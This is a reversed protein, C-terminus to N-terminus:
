LQVSFLICTFSYQIDIKSDSYWFELLIQSLRINLEATTKYYNGKTVAKPYM